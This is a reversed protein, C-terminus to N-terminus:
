ALGGKVKSGALFMISGAGHDTGHSANEDVRRGFESFVMVVVKDAVKLQTLDQQFAALSGALEGVLNPHTAVQNSHTDYGGQQVYMLRVGLGAAIVQAASRLQAGLEGPYMVTSKYKAAADR